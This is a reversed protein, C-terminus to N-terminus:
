DSQYALDYNELENIPVLVYNVRYIVTEYQLLSIQSRHVQMYHAKSLKSILGNKLGNKENM